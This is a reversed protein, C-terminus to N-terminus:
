WIKSGEHQSIITQVENLVVKLSIIQKQEILYSLLSKIQYLFYAFSKGERYPEIYENISGEFDFDEIGIFDRALLLLKFTLLDVLGLGVTDIKLIYNKISDKINENSFDYIGLLFYKSLNLQIENDYKKLKSLLLEILELNKYKDKVNTEILDSLLTNKNLAHMDWANYDSSILKNIVIELLTYLYENEIYSDFIYKQIRFFLNIAKYIHISGRIKLVESFIKILDDMNSFKSLSLLYLTNVWYDELTQVEEIQTANTMPIILNKLIELLYTQKKDDFNFKKYEASSETYFVHFISKLDKNSLYKICTFIEYIELTKQENDFQWLLADNIFEKQLTKFDEYIDICLYNNNVFYLINEHRQMAETENNSFSLGNNQKVKIQGQRKEHLMKIDYINKYVFSDDRVIFLLPEITQRISQKLELFKENINYAEDNIYPSTDRSFSHKLILLAINANYMAFFMHIYNKEKKYSVVLKKYIIYAKEFAGRHLAFYANKENVTCDIKYDFYLNELKYTKNFLNNKILYYKQGSIAIGCIGVKHFVTIIKNMKKIKEYRIEKSFIGRFNTFISNILDYYKNLHLIARGSNDYVVMFSIERSKLVKQFQDVLIIEFQNLDKLILYLQDILDIESSISVSCNSRKHIDSLFLEIQTVKDKGTYEADINLVSIGHNKFYKEQVKDENFVVMYAPPRIASSSQIWKTIYKLNIDSYSYGLFIVINTSLISKVYNEVLPFKKSYELYDDETFIINQLEIDGHMKILKRTSSTSILEADNRVVDYLAMEEDIAKEIVNDWNTTIIHQPFTKILLKHINHPKVKELPFFSKIKKYYEYSGFELFYLQAIKLYDTEKTKLDKKLEEMLENWDPLGVNKSMGSGIFFVLKNDNKAEFIKVLHSQYTM